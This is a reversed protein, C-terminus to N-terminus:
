SVLSLLKQRIDIDGISEIAELVDALDNGNHNLKMVNMGNLITLCLGDKDFCTPNNSHDMIQFNPTGGTFEKFNKIQFSSGYDGLWLDGNYYRFINSSKVDGHIWENDLLFQIAPAIENFLKNVLDISFPLSCQKVSYCYVPM